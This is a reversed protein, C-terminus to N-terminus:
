RNAGSNTWSANCGVATASASSGSSSRSSGRRADITSPKRRTRSASPCGPAAPRTAAIIKSMAFLADGRAARHVSVGFPFSARGADDHRADPENSKECPRPAISNAAIVVHTAQAGRLTGDNERQPVALHQRQEILMAIFAHRDEDALMAVTLDDRADSPM